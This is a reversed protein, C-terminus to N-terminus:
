CADRKHAITEHPEGEHVTVFEGPAVSWTQSQGETVTWSARASAGMSGLSVHARKGDPATVTVEVAATEGRAAKGAAILDESQIVPGDPFSAIRLRLVESYKQMAEAQAELLRKDLQDGCTALFQDLKKIKMELEAREQRVRDRYDSM